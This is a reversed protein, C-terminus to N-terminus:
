VIVESDAVRRGDFRVLVTAGAGNDIACEVAWYGEEGLDFDQAPGCNVLGM